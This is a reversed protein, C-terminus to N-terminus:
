FPSIFVHVFKSLLFQLLLLLLLLTLKNCSPKKPHNGLNITLGNAQYLYNRFCRQIVRFTSVYYCYYCFMQVAGYHRLKQPAPPALLNVIHLILCTLKPKSKFVSLTDYAKLQCCFSAFIKLHYAWYLQLITQRHCDMQILPM